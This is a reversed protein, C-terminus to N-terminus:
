DDLKSKRKSQIYTIIGFISSVFVVLLIVLSFNDKVFPLNGIFYGAFLFTSVWSIVGVINYRFFKLHPMFGMGAVFPALTRVIPIFSAIVITKAGYKDFFRRTRDIHEKKIFRIDDDRTIKKSVYHGILYNSNDGSVVALCLVFFLTSINLSGTSALAGTVFLVTDGPVLPTVVFGTESFLMFFLLLYILLGHKNTLATLHTDFHLFLDIYYYLNIM